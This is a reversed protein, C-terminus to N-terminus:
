FDINSAKDKKRQEEKKYESNQYKEFKKERDGDNLTLSMKYDHWMFFTVGLGTYGWSDYVVGGDRKVHRCEGWCLSRLKLEPEGFDSSSSKLNTNGYKTLLRSEVTSLNPKVSFDINYIVRYVKSHHDLYVKYENKKNKCVYLKGNYKAYSDDQQPNKCPLNNLVERENMGLKIKKIDFESVNYAHAFISTLCLISFAQVIYKKM